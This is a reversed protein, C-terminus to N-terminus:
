ISVDDPHPRSFLEISKRGGRFGGGVDGAEPGGNDNGGVRRIDQLNVEKKTKATHDGDVGDCDDDYATFFSAVSTRADTYFTARRWGSGALTRAFDENRRFTLFRNTSTDLAVNAAPNESITSNDSTSSPVPQAQPKIITRLSIDSSTWDAPRDLHQSSDSISPTVGQLHPDNGEHQQTLVDLVRGDTEDILVLSSRFLNSPTTAMKISSSSMGKVLEPLTHCNSNKGDRDRIL